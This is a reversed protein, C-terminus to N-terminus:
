PMDECDTPAPANGPRLTIRVRESDTAGPKGANVAGSVTNYQIYASRFYEGGRCLHADGQLKIVGVDTDYFIENARARLQQGADDLERYTAPTGRIDILRLQGERTALVVEDGIIRVSGQSFEVNGFYRSVQKQQDISVRDARIEAVENRDATAGPAHQSVVALLGVCCADRWNM